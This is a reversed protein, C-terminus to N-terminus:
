VLTGEELIGLEKLFCFFIYGCTLGILFGGVVDSPYHAGLYIRGFATLFVFLFSFLAFKKKRFVLSFFLAVAAANTVHGSPFSFSDPRPGFTYVQELAEFPRQRSILDKILVGEVFWTFLVLILGLFGLRKKKGKAFIIVGLCFFFWVVGGHVLYDVFVFFFDIGKFHPLHNIAFFLAQDLQLITKWVEFFM